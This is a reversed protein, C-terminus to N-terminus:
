FKSMAYQSIEHSIVSIQIIGSINKCDEGKQVQEMNYKLQVKVIQVRIKRMLPLPLFRSMM